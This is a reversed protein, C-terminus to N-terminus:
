TLTAEESAPGEVEWVEVPAAINKLLVPGSSRLRFAGEVRRVTEPDLLIQGGVALDRLRAALNTVPGTATFTWREGAVDRLRTSGVDCEGSAIGIKIAVPPHNLGPERNTARTKEQVACATRVAAAAHAEPSGAQFLIMLGDGATENIDGGQAHIDALFLSFYREVLATLAERPLRESLRTYGEIDLFMVTVDKATKHLPASPDTEIARRVADPVFRDLGRKVAQLFAVRELAEALERNRAELAAYSQALREAMLNFGETVAAIEDTGSVRERVAFDGARLRAMAGELARLPRGMSRAMLWALWAGGVSASAGILVVTSIVRVHATPDPEDLRTFATLAAASLPVFSIVLWLLLIRHTVRIKWLRPNGVVPTTAFLAPWVHTRCVYDAAFFVAAAAILGALLPRIVFHAWLGPTVPALLSPLRLAALFAVGLWTLFSLMALVAPANAARELGTGPLARDPARAAVGGVTVLCPWLYIVSAITPVLFTLYFRVHRHPQLASQVPAPLDPFLNLHSYAATLGLAGANTFLVLVPLWRV